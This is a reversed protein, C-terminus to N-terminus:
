HLLNRIAQLSEYPEVPLDALTGAVEAAQDITAAPMESLWRALWRCAWRDYADDEHAAVLPLLRLAVDIPIPRGQERSIDNAAAVAMALDGRELARELDRIPRYPGLSM